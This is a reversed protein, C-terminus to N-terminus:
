ELRISALFSSIRERADDLTTGPRIQTSVQYTHWPESKSWFRRFGAFSGTSLESNSYWVWVLIRINTREAEVETVILPLNGVSVQRLDDSIIEWGATRLCHAAPHIQHVNSSCAVALVSVSDPGDSAFYYKSVRSSGFFRQEADTLEQPRGLWSGISPNSFDPLYPLSKRQFSDAHWILLFVVISIGYFMFSERCMLLKRRTNAALWILCAATLIGKIVLGDFHVPGIFGSLWYRSSTCILMLVAYAPFIFIASQWGTFLWVTSWAVAVSAAIAAANNDLFVAAAFLMLSPIMGFLGTSDFGSTRSSFEKWVLILAALFILGFIGDFRDLRSHFWASVIYPMKFFLLIMGGFLIAALTGKKM